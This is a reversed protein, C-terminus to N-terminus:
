VPETPRQAGPLPTPSVVRVPGKLLSPYNRELFRRQDRLHDSMAARAEEANRNSVGVYIRRHAKVIADRARADYHIGVEHGDSIASIGVWFALLVRNGSAEAIRAHFERNSELFGEEDDIAQELSEEAAAIRKLDEDTRRLAALAAVSPEYTERADVIEDYSVGWGRLMISLLHAIRDSEPRQVVPGGLRGTRVEVLGQAELLRLAERLTGRGIGFDDMMQAENPLTMGPTLNRRFIDEAIAEAVLASMKPRRLRSKHAGAQREPSM